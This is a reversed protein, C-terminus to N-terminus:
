RGSLRPFIGSLFIRISMGQDVGEIFCNRTESVACAAPDAPSKLSSTWCYDTQVDRIMSDRFNNTKKDIMLM